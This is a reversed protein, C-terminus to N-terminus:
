SVRRSDSLLTASIRLPELEIPPVNSHEQEPSPEPQANDVVPVTINQTLWPLQSFHLRRTVM